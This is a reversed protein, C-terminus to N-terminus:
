GIGGVQRGKKAVEFGYDIAADPSTRRLGDHGDDGDDNDQEDRDDDDHEPSEPTWEAGALWLVPGHPRAGAVPHADRGGIEPENGAPTRLGAARCPRCEIRLAWSSFRCSM